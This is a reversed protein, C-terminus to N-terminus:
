FGVLRGRHYDQLRFKRFNSPSQTEILQIDISMIIPLPQGYSTPVYDIDSPYPISLSQIVVPIKHINTAFKRRLGSTSQNELTSYANLLLVEPPMGLLSPQEAETQYPSVDSAGGLGARRASTQAQQFAPDNRQQEFAARAEQQNIDLPGSDGFYPMTWGRLLQIMRMNNDAESTTRSVLRVNSLQFTRSSTSGYVYISGPLHVPNLTKYEVNRNETLDPTVDFVVVYSFSPNFPNTPIRRAPRLSVKFDHSNTTM